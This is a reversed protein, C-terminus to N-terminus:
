FIYELFYIGVFIIGCIYDWLFKFCYHWVQVPGAQAKQQEDAKAREEAPHDEDDNKVLGQNPGSKNAGNNESLGAAARRKEEAAQRMLEANKRLLEGYREKEAALQLSSASTDNLNVIFMTVIWLIPVLILLKVLSRKPLM